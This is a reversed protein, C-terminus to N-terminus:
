DRDLMVRQERIVYIKNFIVENPIMPCKKIPQISEQSLLCKM